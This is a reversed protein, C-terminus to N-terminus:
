HAIFGCVVEGRERSSRCDVMRHVNQPLRGVAFQLDFRIQSRTGDTYHLGMVIAMTIQLYTLSTNYKYSNQRTMVKGKEGHKEYWAREEGRDKRITHSV